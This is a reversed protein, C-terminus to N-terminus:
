GYGLQKIIQSYNPMNISPNLKKLDCNTVELRDLPWASQPPLRHAGKAKVSCPTAMSELTIITRFSKSDINLDNTHKYHHTM